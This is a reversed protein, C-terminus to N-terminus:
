IEPSEEYKAWSLYSCDNFDMVYAKMNSPSITIAGEGKSVLDETTYGRYGIRGYIKAVHRLRKVEWHAPIEGMWEIGSDKMKVGGLAASEDLVKKKKTGVGGLAFAASSTSALRTSALRTSALRTSALGKTVAENIIASKEEEYLELLRKKDTILADIEATKQDLYAAIATQEELPPFLISFDKLAQTPLEVFTTGVGLSNLIEKSSLLLYYLYETNFNGSSVITKCGQNTCAEIRLIGLHGIPARTSLVISNKPAITTGSNEFGELTITRRSTNIDKSELKGLDDTTVWFIEGNWYKDETSKPTSGTLIKTIQKIKRVIWHEPIEGIWEIGSDKYKEYRRM